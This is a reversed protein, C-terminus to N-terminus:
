AAALLDLERSISVRGDPELSSSVLHRKQESELGLVAQGGLRRRQRGSDRVPAGAVRDREPVPRQAHHTKPVLVSVL